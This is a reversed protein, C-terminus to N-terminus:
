HVPVQFDAANEDLEVAIRETRGGDYDTDPEVHPQGDRDFAVDGLRHAVERGDGTAARRRDVAVAQQRPDRGLEGRIERLIRFMAERRKGGFPLTAVRVLALGDLQQQGIAFADLARDGPDVAGARQHEGVARAPGPEEGPFDRQAARLGATASVPGPSKRTRSVSAQILLGSGSGNMKAATVWIRTMSTPLLRIFHAIRPGVPHVARPATALWSMPVSATRSQCFRSRGARATPTLTAPSAARTRTSPWSARQRSGM